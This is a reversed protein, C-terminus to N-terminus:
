LIKMKILKYALCSLKRKDIIDLDFDKLYYDIFIITKDSIISKADFLLKYYFSEKKESSITSLIFRASILLSLIQDYKLLVFEKYVQKKGDLDMFYTIINKIEKNKKLLENEESNIKEEIWNYIEDKNEDMNM